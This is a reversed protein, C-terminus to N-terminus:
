ADWYENLDVLDAIDMACIQSFGDIIETYFLQSRDPSLFPHAHTRQGGSLALPITRLRRIQFHESDHPFHLSFLQHDTATQSEYFLFRGAPDFGTHVYGMNPPLKVEDFHDTQLDYRGVYVNHQNNEKQNAEYYIGRATSVQHCVVGHGDRPRLTRTNGDFDVTWMGSDDRVHNVLMRTNDIFFIHHVHFDLAIIDKLAGNATDIVSITSPVQNRWADHMEWNFQGMNLLAEREAFKQTFLNRDAHIFAFHRGDPSFGTQGISIRNPLELILRDELTHLHVCRLQEDQFYYVENLPQNLSSLHNYIGRLHPLCWIAWGSHQTRGDTLQVIKGSILDLRFLQVWGTRESHFVLYRNDSTISPIFYYLPYNSHRGTTLQKIIRGTEPDSFTRWETPYKDGIAMICNKRSGPTRIHPTM